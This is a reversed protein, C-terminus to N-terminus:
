RIFRFKCVGRFRKVRNCELTSICMFGVEEGFVLYFGFGLTVGRDCTRIILTFRGSGEFIFLVLLSYGFYGFIVRYGFSM